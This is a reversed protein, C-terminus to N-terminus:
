SIIFALDKWFALAGMELEGKFINNKGWREGPQSLHCVPQMLFLISNEIRQSAKELRKIEGDRGAGSRLLLYTILNM